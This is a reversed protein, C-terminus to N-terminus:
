PVAWDLGLDLLKERTPVGDRTWGAMEYYEDLAREFEARDLASGATPGTGALAEFLKAPLRDDKRAFGERANFLRMLNLRREGVRMLEALDVDWGTVARLATVLDAPGYLAWAPNFVFQCLCLADLASYFVQTLYAFRVKERGLTHRRQPETLGLAALREVWVDPAGEEYCPDHESSQHDAGFPNVAYIVALSRKAQPMHAPLEQGKVTIACAEAAPGWRRAARASGQGLVPGLAGEGTM